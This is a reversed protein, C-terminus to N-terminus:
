YPKSLLVDFDYYIYRTGVQDEDSFETQDCILGGGDRQNTATVIDVVSQFQAKTEDYPGDSLSSDICVDSFKSSNYTPINCLYCFPNKYTSNFPDYFLNCSRDVFEDYSSWLGSVNCSAIHYTPLLCGDVAVYEPPIFFINGKRSRIKALLDKEPFRIFVDNHIKLIWKALVQTDNKNNCRACHINKYHINSVLDTVPTVDVADDTILNDECLSM